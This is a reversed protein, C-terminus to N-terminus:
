SELKTIIDKLDMYKFITRSSLSKKENKKFSAMTKINSSIVFKWVWEAKCESFVENCEQLFLAILETLEDVEHTKGEQEIYNLTLKQLNSLINMVRLTPIVSLKTLNCIFVVTAKKMDNAKNYKCYQEYDVDPTVYEIKELSASFAGLFSSLIDKYIDYKGMLEKYLSAYVSSYFKNTSAIVFINNAITKMHEKNNEVESCKAILDFVAEKQNEYNKISMKNLCARIEQIWLEVGEKKEIVTPVFEINAKWNADPVTRKPKSKVEKRKEFKKEIFLPAVKQDLEKIHLLIESPLIYSMTNAINAFDDLNYSYDMISSYENM